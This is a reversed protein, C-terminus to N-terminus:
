DRLNWPKGTPESTLADAQLTPSRPEIGPDPLYGPSLFPLGSCYEQMSFVMSLPAQHAITWSLAGSTPAVLYLRGGSTVYEHIKTELGEIGSRSKKPISYYYM